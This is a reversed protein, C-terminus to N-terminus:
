NHMYPHVRRYKPVWYFGDAGSWEGYFAFVSDLDPHTLEVCFWKETDGFMSAVREQETEGTLNPFQDRADEPYQDLDEEIADLEHKLVEWHAQNPDAFLAMLVEHADAISDPVRGNAESLGVYWHNVTIGMDEADDELGAGTPIDDLLAQVREVEPDPKVQTAEAISQAMAVLAEGRAQLTEADLCGPVYVERAGPQTPTALSGWRTWEALDKAATELERCLRSLDELTLDAM